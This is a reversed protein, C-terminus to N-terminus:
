IASKQCVKQTLQSFPDFQDFKLSFILTEASQLNYFWLKGCKYGKEPWCIDDGVGNRETRMNSNQVIQYNFIGFQCWSWQWCQGPQLATKNVVMKDSSKGGVCKHEM